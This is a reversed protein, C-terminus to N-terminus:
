FTITVTIADGYTGAPVNQLAPIRGYVTFTDSDTYGLTFSGGSGDGWIQTRASDGYLNYTLINAGSLLHRTGYSGSNGKSLAILSNKGPSGKNCSIILSGTGNDAGTAKPDYAGFNVSTTSVTCAAIAPSACLRGILASSGGVVLIAAALSLGRRGGLPTSPLDNQPVSPRTV